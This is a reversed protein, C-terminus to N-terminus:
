EGRLFFGSPLNGLEKLTFLNSGHEQSNFVFSTTQYIAIARYNTTPDTKKGAHLQLTEYRYNTM